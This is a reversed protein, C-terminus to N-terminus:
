NASNQRKKGKVATVVHQFVSRPVDIPHNAVRAQQRRGVGLFTLTRINGHMEDPKSKFDDPLEIHFRETIIIINLCHVWSWNLM